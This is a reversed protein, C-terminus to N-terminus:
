QLGRSVLSALYKIPIAEGALKDMSTFNYLGIVVNDLNYFIDQMVGNWDTVQKERNSEYVTPGEHHGVQRHCGCNRCEVTVPIDDSIWSDM